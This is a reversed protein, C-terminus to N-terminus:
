FDMWSCTETGKRITENNLSNHYPDWVASSYEMQPRVMILHASEKVKRLNRKLCNLTRTAKSSITREKEEKKKPKVTFWCQLDAFLM